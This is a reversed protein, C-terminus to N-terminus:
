KSALIPRVREFKNNSLGSTFGPFKAYLVANEANSYLRVVACAPIMREENVGVIGTHCPRTYLEFGLATCQLPIM